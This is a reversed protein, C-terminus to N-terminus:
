KKLQLINKKDSEFLIKYRTSYDFNIWDPGRNPEHLIQTGSEICYELGFGIWLWVVVFFSLVLFWSVSYPRTSNQQFRIVRGSAPDSDQSCFFFGVKCPRTPNSFIRTVRDSACDYCIDRQKRNPSVRVDCFPKLVPM